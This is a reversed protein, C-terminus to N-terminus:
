PHRYVSGVIVNTAHPNIIEVFIYEIEKKSYIKLDTRPKYVLTNKIYLLDGGKTAETDTRVPSHYGEISIDVIPETWKLLKSETLALKHDLINLM